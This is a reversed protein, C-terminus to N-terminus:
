SAFFDWVGDACNRRYCCSLIHEETSEDATVSPYIKARTKTRKKRQPYFTFPVKRDGVVRKSNRM